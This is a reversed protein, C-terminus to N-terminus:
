LELALEASCAARCPWSQGCSECRNGAQHHVGLIRVATERYHDLLGAWTDLKQSGLEETKSMTM